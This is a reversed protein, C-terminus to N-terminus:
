SINCVVSTGAADLEQCIFKKIAQLVKLGGNVLWPATDDSAEVAYACDARITWESAKSATEEDIGRSILQSTLWERCLSTLYIVRINCHSVYKEQPIGFSLIGVTLYLFERSVQDLNKQNLEVTFDVLSIDCTEDQCRANVNADIVSIAKEILDKVDDYNAPLEDFFTFAKELVQAIIDRPLEVFSIM